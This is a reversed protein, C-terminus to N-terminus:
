HWILRFLQWEPLRDVAGATLGPDEPVLGLGESGLTQSLGSPQLLKFGDAEVHQSTVHTPVLRLGLKISAPLAAARDGSRGRFHVTGLSPATGPVGPM